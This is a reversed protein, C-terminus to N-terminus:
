IKGRGGLFYGVGVLVVFIIISVFAYVPLGSSAGLMGGVKSMVLNGPVRVLVQLPLLELTAAL